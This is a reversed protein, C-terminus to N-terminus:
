LQHRRTLWYVAFTGLWHAVTYEGCAVAALGVDAHRRAASALAASCQADPPLAAASADLMWARSLNLGHLHALKGDRSDAPRAPTLWQRFVASDPTPLYDDLWAAFEPAPLVRRMLDAAGLVPSLFDHGSPEYAVPAARDAAHFDRARRALLEAFEANGAARAWDWALGLAFATQSHEGSRIPHTLRPLWETFRAVALEELPRLCQRWTAAQPDDWTRLESALQLLWALGYPREFGERGPRALYKSEEALNEATLSRALAGRADAAWDATPFEKLLRAISWHGHVASHWDYCGFFAPTLRRPPRADDDSTLVLAIQNPYERHLSGLILRVLRAALAAGIAPSPFTHGMEDRCCHPTASNMSVTMM